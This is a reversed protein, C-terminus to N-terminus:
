DGMEEEDEVEMLKRREGFGPVEVLIAACSYHWMLGGGEEGEQEEGDGSGAGKLNVIQVEWGEHRAENLWVVDEIEEFPFFKGVIPTPDEDSAIKVDVMRIRGFGNGVRSVNQQTPVEEGMERDDEMFKRLQHEYLEDWAEDGLVPRVRPEFGLSQLISFVVYDIGTL